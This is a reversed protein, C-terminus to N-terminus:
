DHKRLDPYKKLIWEPRQVEYVRIREVHSTTKPDGHEDLYYKGGFPEVPIDSIIGTVILEQLTRPKRHIVGKYKKAVKELRQLDREVIAEKLREEINKKTEDDPAKKYMQHLFEVALQPEEAQAYMRSALQPLFPLHGPLASARFLHDAAGRYDRFYYFDNFGTLFEMEWDESYVAIGKALLENSEKGMDAVISLWVAGCTYVQRFKPDLSATMKLAFALWSSEHGKFSAVYQITKLWLIDSFMLDYGLSLTKVYELPFIYGVVEQGRFVRKEDILLQLRYNLSFLCFIILFIVAYWFEAIIGAAHRQSYVVRISNM